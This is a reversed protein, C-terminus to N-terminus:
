KLELPDDNIWNIFLPNKRYVQFNTYPAFSYFYDESRRPISLLKSPTLPNSLEGVKGGYLLETDPDFYFDYIDYKLLFGKGRKKPESKLVYISHLQKTKQSDSFISRTLRPSIFIDGVKLDEIRVLKFNQKMWAPNKGILDQLSM